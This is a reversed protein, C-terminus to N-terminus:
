LNARASKRRDLIIGRKLLARVVTQNDLGLRTIDGISRGDNVFLHCILLDTQLESDLNTNELPLEVRTQRVNFGDRVGNSSKDTM